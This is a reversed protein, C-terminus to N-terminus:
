LDSREFYAFLAIVAVVIIAIILWHHLHLIDVLTIKGLDGWTLVTKKLLPYSEAFLGAGALMGAIGWIADWRGEGLAGAQTGPCYGLLGWGVGFLLGGIINGGLVTAKISLKALGMDNLLYVGVMAVLIASFMFKVITMDLLRLAGLQKDYRIVRGKQLLFGFFMGTVLGYMLTNM